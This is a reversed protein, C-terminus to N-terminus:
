DKAVMSTSIIESIALEDERLVDKNYQEKQKDELKELSKVENHAELVIKTQANIRLQIDRLETQYSQLQRAINDLLFKHSTMDHFTVGHEQKAQFDLCKEKRGQHAREIGTEIEARIGNLQALTNQEKQLMQKKYSQMKKLSFEFSKM